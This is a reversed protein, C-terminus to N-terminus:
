LLRGADAALTSGTMVGALPTCCFLVVRAVDDPQVARHILNAALREEVNVGAAALGSMQEAVGPTDVVTPAVALVRIGRDALELALARTFGVVASKSGIYASTAPNTKFAETSAMNVIVGGDGLARAAERAGAFTGRANVRFVMDIHEDTADLVPGTAPFIGANNVWIDLGGWAAVAAERARALTPTDGVDMHQSLFSDPRGFEAGLRKRVSDAAEADIDGVLVNAGAEALRWAIQEGIGRGGGTVVARRGRLDVLETVPATANLAARRGAPQQTGNSM